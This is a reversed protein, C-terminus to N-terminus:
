APRKEWRRRDHASAADPAVVFGLGAFLAGVAEAHASLSEGIVRRLGMVSWGHALLRTFVETAVGRRWWAQALMAGIEGEDGHRRFGALGIAAASRTEVIIWYRHGPHSGQTLACLREFARGAADAALPPGVGGMVLPDTYLSVYLDRHGAGDVAIPQLQFRATELVATM